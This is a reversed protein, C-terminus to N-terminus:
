TQAPVVVRPEPLGLFLIGPNACNFHYIESFDEYFWLQVVSMVYPHPNPHPKSKAVPYVKNCAKCITISM